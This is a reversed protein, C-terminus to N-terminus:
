SHDAKFKFSFLNMLDTMLFDYFGKSWLVITEIFLSLYREIPSAVFGSGDKDTFGSVSLKKSSGM